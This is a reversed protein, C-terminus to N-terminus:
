KKLKKTIEEEVPPIYEITYVPNYLQKDKREDKLKTIRGTKDLLIKSSSLRDKM